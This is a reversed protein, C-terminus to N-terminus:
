SNSNEMQVLEGDNQLSDLWRITENNVGTREDENWRGTIKEFNENLVQGTIQSQLLRLLERAVKRTPFIYRMVPIGYYHEIGENAGSIVTLRSPIEVGRRIMALSVARTMIDDAILLVDPWDNERTWRDILQLTKQYVMEELQAGSVWEYQLNFVQPESFCLSSAADRAGQVDRPDDFYVNSSRLIVMKKLSHGQMWKVADWGFQYTDMLVHAQGAERPVGLRVTPPPPLNKLCPCDNLGAGLEILGKFSCNQLDSALRRHVSTSQFDANVKLETLGDYVQCIWRCGKMRQIELDIFRVLARHFHVSETTLFPGVLLGIVAKDTDSKVFTGRKRRREILDAEVLLNMAKDIATRNVRWQRSLVHSSPLKESAKIEGSQIQQRIFNAIQEYVPVATQININQNM